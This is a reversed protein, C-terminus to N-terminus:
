HIPPVVPIRTLVDLVSGIILLLLWLVGSTAMAKVIAGSHRVEMFFLVVLIAKAAAIIIAVTFNFRGLNVFSLAVTLALLALLAAAIGFLTKAPEIPEAPEM